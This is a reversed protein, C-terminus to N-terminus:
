GGWAKPGLRTLKDSTGMCCCCAQLQAYDETCAETNARSTAMNWPLLHYWLSRGVAMRSLALLCMVPVSSAFTTRHASAAPMKNNLM